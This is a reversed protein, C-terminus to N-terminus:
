LHLYPESFQNWALDLFLLTICNQLFSPFIGSFSNNSLVLFQLSETPFCEPVEGELLNSSLDLDFLGQLKCMSEPISGGIQNSFMILTALTPAGFNLPLKGSFLNNSIDLTIISRPLSPVPGTLLNSSLNLELIAMGDLHAPLSGSLKNDSIDIYIAQSFTLWFWEPIKDKLYTSSMDLHSIQFQQQLWAPFLPGMQCNAFNGYELRFPPFWDRNVTVKLNKNSSLDLKKLSILGEFHEEM